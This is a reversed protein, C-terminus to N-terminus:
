KPSCSCCGCEDVPWPPKEPLYSEFEDLLQKQYDGSFTGSLFREIGEEFLRKWSAEENGPNIPFFLADNAVAAKYDGPADGVMLTYNPEYQSAVELSQKKTGIEQGCIAVVHKALDHEEWERVLAEQPTASVVMIDTQSLSGGIHTGGCTYTIKVIEKRIENAKRELQQREDAQLVMTAVEHRGIRARGGAGTM